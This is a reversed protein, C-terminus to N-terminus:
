LLLKAAAAQQEPALLSLQETVQAPSSAARVASFVHRMMAVIDAPPNPYSLFLIVVNAMQPIVDAPNTALM